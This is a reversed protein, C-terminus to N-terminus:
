GEYQKLKWKGSKMKTAKVFLPVNDFSNPIVQIVGDIDVYLNHHREFCVRSYGKPVETNKKIKCDDPMSKLPRWINKKTCFYMYPCASNTVSCKDENAMNCM